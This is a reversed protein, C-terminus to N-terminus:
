ADFVTNKCRDVLLDGRSGRSADGCPRTQDYIKGSAPRWGGGPCSERGTDRELALHEMLLWRACQLIVM